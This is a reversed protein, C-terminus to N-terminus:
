LTASVSLANRTFTTALKFIVNFSFRKCFVSSMPYGMSYITMLYLVGRLIFIIASFIFFSLCKKCKAFCGTIVDLSEVLRLLLFTEWSVSTGAGM